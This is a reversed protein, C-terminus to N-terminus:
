FLVRVLLKYAAQLAAGLSSYPDHQNEFRKPIQALLDKILETCAKLNVVLNDPFPLFIDELDLVTVEHPQNYNEAINYFHVASNYAIFGVQKRTDGPLKDLQDLITDCVVQLYGTQQAISSVDLLFLFIAPQPPRLQM